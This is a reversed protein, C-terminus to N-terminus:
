NRITSQLFISTWFFGNRIGVFSLHRGVSAQSSEVVRSSSLPNGFAIKKDRLLCLQCGGFKLDRNETSVAQFSPITTCHTRSGFELQGAGRVGCRGDISLLGYKNVFSFDIILNLM